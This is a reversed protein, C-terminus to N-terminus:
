DFEEEGGCLAESRDYLASHLNFFCLFYCGLDNSLESPFCFSLSLMLRRVLFYYNNGFAKSQIQSLTLISIEM